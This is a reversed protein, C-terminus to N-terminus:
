AVEDNNQNEDITLHLKVKGGERDIVKEDLSVGALLSNYITMQLQSTANINQLSGQYFNLLM